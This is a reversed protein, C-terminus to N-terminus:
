GWMHQHTHVDANAGVPINAVPLYDGGSPEPSGNAPNSGPNSAVPTTGATSLVQAVTTGTTNFSGGGVPVNNGSVDMADAVFGVGAAQVQATNGSLLGQIMTKSDAALTGANSGLENDFRASFIGGQSRDFQAASHSYSEIQSILSHIAQTNGSGVLANAQASLTNAGVIFSAWFQTQAANDQFKNTTGTLYDAFPTFGSAGGQTANALLTADGQVIDIIDLMNDNNARAADVNRAPQNDFNHIQLNLQHEITQAHILTLPDASTSNTGFQAPDYTILSQLGSAAAKLDAQIAAHNGANVGGIMLNAADNFLAGVEALNAVPASAATVGSPLAAPAALFGTAGNNAAALLTPDNQILSIIQLQGDHLTTEAATQAAGHSQVSAQAAALLSPILSEISALDNAQTSGAAYIGTAAVAQVDALIANMDQTYEGLTPTQNNHVVANQWLGGELLRTADNFVVGAQTLDATTALADARITTVAM